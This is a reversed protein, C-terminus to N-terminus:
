RRINKEVKSRHVKHKSLVRRLAHSDGVASCDPEGDLGRRKKYERAKAENCRKCLTQLDDPYGHKVAWRWFMWGSPVGIEKRHEKGDENIHDLVLRETAGCM